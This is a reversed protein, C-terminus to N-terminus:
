PSGRVGSSLVEDRNAHRAGRQWQPYIAALNVPVAKAYATGPSTTDSAALTSAGLYAFSAERERRWM